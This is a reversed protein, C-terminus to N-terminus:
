KPNFNTQLVKRKSDFKFACLVAGQQSNQNGRVIDGYVLVKAAMKAKLNNLRIAPM